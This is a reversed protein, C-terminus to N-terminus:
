SQANTARDQKAEDQMRQCALEDENDKLAANYCWIAEKRHEGRHKCAVQAKNKKLQAVKDQDSEKPVELDEDSDESPTEDDPHVDPREPPQLPKHMMFLEWSHSYYLTSDIGSETTNASYIIETYGQDESAVLPM